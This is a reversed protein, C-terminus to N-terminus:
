GGILSGVAAAISYCGHFSGMIPYEAVTEVLVGATNMAVDMINMTFGYVFFTFCLLPVGEVFAIVGLSLSYLFAGLIVTWKSGWMRILFGSLPTVVVSGLYACLVILGLMSNSLDERDAIADFQSAWVGSSITM